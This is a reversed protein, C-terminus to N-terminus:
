DKEKGVEGTQSKVCEEMYTEMEESGVNEEQAWKTCQDTAEELSEAVALPSNLLAFSLTFLSLLKFM